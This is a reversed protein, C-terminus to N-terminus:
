EFNLKNNALEDTLKKLMKRGTEKDLMLWRNIISIKAIYALISDINFYNFTSMDNIKNWRINDLKHEKLLMDDNGLTSILEETYDCVGKLGFDVAPSTILLTQIDGSSVIVRDIDIQKVRATYASCINRLDLDFEFWERLFNNKVHSMKNFFVCQMINEISKTTDIELESAVIDSKYAKLVDIIGKDLGYFESEGFDSGTKQNRFEEIISEVESKNLNGMTNFAQTRRNILNITNQIDYQTKFDHYLLLDADSLSEEMENFISELNIDKSEADLDLEKLSSTLCYYESM